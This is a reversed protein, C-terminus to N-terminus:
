TTNRSLHNEVTLSLVRTYAALLELRDTNLPLNDTRATLLVVGLITKRSIVPVLVEIGLRRLVARVKSRPGTKGVLDAVPLLEGTERLAALLSGNVGFILDEPEALELGIHWYLSTMENDFTPIISIAAGDAGTLEKISGVAQELLEPLDGMEQLRQAARVFDWGLEAKRQFRLNDDILLDLRRRLGDHLMDMIKGVGVPPRITSQKLAESM